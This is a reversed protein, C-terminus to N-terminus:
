PATKLSLSGETLGPASATLLIRGPAATARVFAVCEGQFAHRQAAQFTEHSANNGNDVADIVGPGSTGFSILDSASPVIMGNADVIRARVVAVQDFGPSLKKTESTLEIREPAAATSLEDTALVDGKEDRAVAKLTGPEFPVPWNRPSADANIRKVGLSRGNLFLEVQKCNSYVEVNEAHPSLNKPTWDPFLVQSYREDAAYGPDVPMADTAALRRAMCVM